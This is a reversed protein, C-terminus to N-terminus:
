KRWRGGWDSKIKAVRSTQCQPVFTLENASFALPLALLARLAIRLDLRALFLFLQM